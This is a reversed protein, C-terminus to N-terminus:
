GNELFGSVGQFPDSLCFVAIRMQGSGPGQCPTYGSQPIQSRSEIKVLYTNKWTKEHNKTDNKLWVAKKIEPHTKHVTDMRGRNKHSGKFFWYHSFPFQHKKTDFVYMKQLAPLRCDSSFVRERNCFGTKASLFTNPVHFCTYVFITSSLPNIYM